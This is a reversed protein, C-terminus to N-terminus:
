GGKIMMPTKKQALSQKGIMNFKADVVADGEAGANDFKTGHDGTSEREFNVKDGGLVNRADPGKPMAM